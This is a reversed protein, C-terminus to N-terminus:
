TAALLPYGAIRGAQLDAGFQQIFTIQEPAWLQYFKAEALARQVPWGQVAMRYCAVAVGTRGVGAYCHVYAPQNAPKTVFDLFQKMQATTPATQDTIVLRLSAMGLARAPAADSDDEERLNVISRFGRAQLAALGRADVASGRALGPSVQAQYPLFLNDAGVLPRTPLSSALPTIIPM